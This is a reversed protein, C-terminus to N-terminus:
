TEVYEVDEIVTVSLRDLLETTRLEVALESTELAENEETALVEYEISYELVLIDVAALVDELTSNEVLVSLKVELAEDTLALVRGDSALVTELM